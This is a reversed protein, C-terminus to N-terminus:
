STLRLVRAMGHSRGSIIDRMIRHHGDEIYWTTLYVIVKPYPDGEWPEVPGRLKDFHVGPQTATLLRYNVVEVAVTLWKATTMNPDPWPPCPDKSVPGLFM